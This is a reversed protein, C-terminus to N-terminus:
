GSKEYQLFQYMPSFKCINIAILTTSNRASDDLKRLDEEMKTLEKRSKIIDRELDKVFEMDGEEPTYKPDELLDHRAFIYNLVRSKHNENLRSIRHRGIRRVIEKDSPNHKIVEKVLEQDIDHAYGGPVLLLLVRMWAFQSLPCHDMLVSQLM